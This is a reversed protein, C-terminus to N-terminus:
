RIGNLKNKYIKFTEGSITKIKIYQKNESIIRGQRSISIRGFNFSIYEIKIRRIDKKCVLKNKVIYHSAVIAYGKEDFISLDFSACYTPAVGEYIELNNSTIKEKYNLSQKAKYFIDKSLVFTPAVFTIFILFAFFLITLSNINQLNIKKAKIFKLV